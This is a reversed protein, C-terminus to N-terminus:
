EVLNKLSKNCEKRFNIRSTLELYSDINESYGKSITMMDGIVRKYQETDNFDFPSYDLEANLVLHSFFYYDERYKFRLYIMAIPSYMVKNSSYEIPLDSELFNRINLMDQQTNIIFSTLFLGTTVFLAWYVTALYFVSMMIVYSALYIALNGHRTGKVAKQNGSFYLYAFRNKNVM